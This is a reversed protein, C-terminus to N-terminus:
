LVTRCTTRKFLQVQKVYDEINTTKKLCEDDGFDGMVFRYVFVPKQQGIRYCRAVAQDEIAPNWNPSVFYVESFNEQLNLGECGTQIQLILVDAKDFARKDGSNRGDYTNVLLIGGKVLAKKIQDIEKIFQCFVLKGSGNDKRQLLMEVVKDLKSSVNKLVNASKSEQKFIMSPLVCAQRARIMNLMVLHNGSYQVRKGLNEIDAISDAHSFSLNKHIDVALQKETDNTWPVVVDQVTLPPLEIGVEMKSRKLVYADTFRKLAEKDSTKYMSEEFGIIRCLSYFDNVRNQLPTGTIAWSINVTLASCAKHRTTSSNRLHHAEDYIVRDWRITHLLSSDKGADITVVDYTTIVINANAFEQATICSRKSGHYLLPTLRAIRKIANLWQHLLAVPLVILTRRVVHSYILGIAVITKGLGMEDAIIGGKRISGREHEIAWKVGDRQYSKEDLSSRSVMSDFRFMCQEISSMKEELNKLLLPTSLLKIFKIVSVYM